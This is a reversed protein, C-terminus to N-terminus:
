QQDGQAKIVRLPGRMGADFHGAILCAFEFQGSRNFTWILETTKGPPVHAMYPEAHEMNPFRKMLDAHERNTEETGLVFEHMLNGNNKVVFKITEGEKIQLSSPSFRMTDSMVVQITRNVKPQTGGIGWQTQEFVTPANPTAQRHAETGHAFVATPWLLVAGLLRVKSPHFVFTKM